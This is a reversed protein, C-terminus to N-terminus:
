QTWDCLPSGPLLSKFEGGRELFESNNKIVAAESEENVALFCFDVKEKLLTSRPLIALHSKPMFKHQKEPQDDIVMSVYNKLNFVNILINARLGAGYLGIKTGSTKKRELLSLLDKKYRQAKELFETDRTGTKSITPNETSPGKRLM